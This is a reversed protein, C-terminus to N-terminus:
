TYYKTLKVIRCTDGPLNRRYEKLGRRAQLRTKYIWGTAIDWSEFFDVMHRYEIAWLYEKKM